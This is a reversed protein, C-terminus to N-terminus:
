VPENPALQPVPLPPALAALDERTFPPLRTFGQRALRVSRVACEKELLFYRNYGDRLANLETLDVTPLYAQWRRNFRMLSQVLERLAQRLRRASSTPAIQVRLRPELEAFLNQLIALQEDDALHTRLRNWDGALARLIGLRTRVMPLWEDRQRRCRERLQDLADQVGRARRVYAPADYQALFLQTLERDEGRAPITVESM